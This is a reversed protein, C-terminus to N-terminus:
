IGLEEVIRIVEFKGRVSNIDLTKVYYMLEKREDLLRATKACKKLQRM